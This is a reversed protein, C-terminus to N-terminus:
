PGKLMTLKIKVHNTLYPLTMSVLLVFISCFVMNDDYKRSCPSFCFTSTHHAKSFIVKILKLEGSGVKVRTTWTGMMFTILM